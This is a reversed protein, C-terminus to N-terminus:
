GQLAGQNSQAVKQAEMAATLAAKDQAAHSQLGAIQGRLALADQTAKNLEAQVSAVQNRAQERIAAQEGRVTAVEAKLNGNEDDLRAIRANSAKTAQASVDLRNVFVVLGAALLMSM